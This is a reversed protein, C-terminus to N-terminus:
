KIRESRTNQLKRRRSRTTKPVPRSSRQVGEKDEESGEPQQPLLERSVDDAKQRLKSRTSKGSDPAFAMGLGVGLALGAMFSKM